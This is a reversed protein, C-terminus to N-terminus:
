QKYHNKPSIWTWKWANKYHIKVIEVRQQITYQEMKIISM